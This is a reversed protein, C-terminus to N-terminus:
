FVIRGGLQVSRPSNAQSTITGFGSSTASSVAPAAFNARNLTNFTEFRLQMYAKEGFHFDKLISADLNNIGDARVWSMLDPLTRIHYVFQGDVFGSGSTDSGTVFADTNIAPGEKVSRPSSKIDRISVGPQLPIDNQFYIPNGSQYRYIANVVFGGLVEDWLRSGGFSVKKGRGFPLHYSGGFTLHHTADYSAIRREPAPDSDNLYTDAEILKSFTYNATFTFGNHTRQQLLVNASHFYSQGSMDNQETISGFEPHPVLLSGVSVTSGNLSTGPLLGAMPNSVKVTYASNLAVDRYPLTSLYQRETGNLNHSYVPIHVGHNGVYLVELLTNPTLTQEVGLDWRESYMDHRQPALFSISQGLFTNVGLSSGSAPTFGNPFPDSLTAAPTLYSDNTVIMDTTSSFGQQNAVVATSYTGKADMSALTPPMVFVGFGGRIVTLGHLLHAPSYSFGIRPSFINTQPEYPAGHDASPFTLGGRVSFQGVPIQSIPNAAYNAEAAATVDNVATPDFGNVTRGLKEGFPTDHDFRLGLNLTLRDKVRWDDQIFGAYYYSTFDGRAAQDYSGATPLGLLLSALDAGFAVHSSGTGSTLWNDGFTFTGTSAGYNSESIRYQRADVGVKLTHRGISKELDALFMYNQSPDFSQSVNGLCEFSTQGSCSTGSTAFSIYPLQLHTSAATLADPLGVTAPGYNGSSGRSELWYTWNARANLVTTSNLTFVEDLAVGWNERLIGKSTVGNGLYDSTVQNNLNHRIDGFLHSRASMNWDIRGFENNYDNTGAPNSLYNHLGVATGETNPEPMLKLYALGVANLAGTVSMLNNNLIPNRVLRGSSDVTATFPDYLQNPNVYASTHKSDPSCMAVGQTPDNALGNPCGGALLASFDGAREAATPVTALNTKPQGDKLNEWAFFFFLKNKGSFIKPFSIPGGISLGYQNFHVNPRSVPVARNNNFWSNADFFALQGFEYLSGHFGNTGSKTVQNIVGGLTRGFSADTDFARVAVEQVSDQTPSYAVSGAWTTDPSGDLLVESKQKPTGGISWSNGAANDFPHVQVPQATAMVGISLQALMAPTRGSLPLDEVQSATIVQGVSANTQDVLPASASVTVTESASGLELAFNILPHESSQLTIASRTSTRFGPASVTIVYEGPLLFPVVYQGANDSTTKSIAGTRVERVAVSARPVVAGNPDTVTGSITARFEQAGCIGALCLM